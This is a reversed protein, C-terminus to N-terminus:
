GKMLSMWAIQMRLSTINDVTKFIAATLKKEQNSLEMRKKEATNKRIAIEKEFKARANEYEEQAARIFVKQKYKYLIFIGPSAIMLPWFSRSALRLGTSAVGVPGLTSTSAAAAAKLLLIGGGISGVNKGQLLKRVQPIPLKAQKSLHQELEEKQKQLIMYNEQLIELTEFLMIFDEKKAKVAAIMRELELYDEDIKKFTTEYEKAARELGWKRGAIKADSIMLKTFGPIKIKEDSTGM